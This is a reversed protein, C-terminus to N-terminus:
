DSTTTMGPPLGEDDSDFVNENTNKENWIEAPVDDVKKSDIKKRRLSRIYLHLYTRYKRNSLILMAIALFPVVYNICEM